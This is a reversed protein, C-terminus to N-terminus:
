TITCHLLKIYCHCDYFVFPALFSNNALMFITIGPIKFATKKFHNSQIHYYGVLTKISSFDVCVHVSVSVCICVCM